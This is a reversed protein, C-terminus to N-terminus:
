LKGTNKYNDKATSAKSDSQGMTVLDGHLNILHSVAKTTSYCSNILVNHM